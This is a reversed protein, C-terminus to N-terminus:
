TTKKQGDQMALFSERDLFDRTKQKEIILTKVGNIGESIISKRNDNETKSKKKKEQELCIEYKTRACKYDTQMKKTIQITSPTIIQWCITKIKILTESLSKRINEAIFSKGLSFSREVALQEHNLVPIIKIVTSLAEYNNHVEFTSVFFEDLRNCTRIIDRVYKLNFGCKITAQIDPFKKSM